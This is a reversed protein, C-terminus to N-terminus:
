IAVKLTASDGADIVAALCMGQDFSNRYDRHGAINGNHDV